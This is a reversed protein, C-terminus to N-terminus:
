IDARRGGAAALFIEVLREAMDERSATTGINARSEIQRLADELDRVRAEATEARAIAAARDRELAAQVAEGLNAVDRLVAELEHVRARLTDREGVLAAICERDRSHPAITACGCILCPTPEAM